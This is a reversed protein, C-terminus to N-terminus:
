GLDKFEWTICDLARSKFPITLNGQHLIDKVEELKKANGTVFALCILEYDLVSRVLRRQDCQDEPGYIIKGHPLPVRFLGNLNLNSCFALISRLEAERKRCM